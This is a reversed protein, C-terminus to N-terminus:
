LRVFWSEFNSISALALRYGQSTMIRHLEEKMESDGNHEITFVKPKSIEWPFAKMIELEGGEIDLSVYDVLLRREILERIGIVQVEISGVSPNKTTRSFAGDVLFNSTASDVGVGLNIFKHSLGAASFFELSEPSPDLSLGDWDLFNRLAFTNSYQKPHFAGIEVYFPKSIDQTHVAVFAEQGLQSTFQGGNKLILAFGELLLALDEQDKSNTQLSLDSLEPVFGFLEM